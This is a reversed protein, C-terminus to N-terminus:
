DAMSGIITIGLDMVKKKYDKILRVKILVKARYSQSQRLSVTSQRTQSLELLLINCTLCIDRSRVLLLGMDSVISLPMLKLDELM